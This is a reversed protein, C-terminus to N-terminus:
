TLHRSLQTNRDKNKGIVDLTYCECLIKVDVSYTERLNRELYVTLDESCAKMTEFMFKLKGSSFTPTLKQRLGKWYHGELNFLHGTPYFYYLFSPIKTTNLM